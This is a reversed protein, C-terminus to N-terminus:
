RGHPNSEWRRCWGESRPSRSAFGERFKCRGPRRLAAPAFAAERQKAQGNPDPRRADAYQENERERQLRCV